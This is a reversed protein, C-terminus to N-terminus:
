ALVVNHRQLVQQVLLLGPGADAVLSSRAVLTDAGVRDGFLLYAYRDEDRFSRWVLGQAEPVWRRIAAAWRRTVADHEASCKTLWADQGVHGLDAGRLSV